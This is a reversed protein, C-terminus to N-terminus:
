DCMVHIICGLYFCLNHVEFFIFSKLAHLVIMMRVIKKKKRM